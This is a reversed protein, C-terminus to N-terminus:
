FFGVFLRLREIKTNVFVTFNNPRLLVCSLHNALLVIKYILDQLEGILSSCNSSEFTSTNLYGINVNEFLFDFEDM